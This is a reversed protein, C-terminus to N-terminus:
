TGTGLLVGAAMPATSWNGCASCKVLSNVVRGMDLTEPKCGWTLGDGKDNPVPYMCPQGPAVLTVPIGQGMLHRWNSAIFTANSTTRKFCGAEAAGDSAFCSAIHEVLLRVDIIGAVLLRPKDGGGVYAHVSRSPLNGHEEAARHRKGMETLAGSFRSLRTTTTWNRAFGGDQVRLSLSLGAGSKTKVWADIGEDRDLMVDTGDRSSETMRLSSWGLPESIVPWVVSAFSRSAKDKDDEWNRSM